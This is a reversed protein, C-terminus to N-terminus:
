SGGGLADLMQALDGLPMSATGDDFVEFSLLRRREPFLEPQPEPAVQQVVAKSAKKRKKKPSEDFDIKKIPEPMTLGLQKGNPTAHYKTGAGSGSQRVFGADVLELLLNRITQRDRIGIHECITRTTVKTDADAYALVALAIAMREDLDLEPTAPQIPTLDTLM